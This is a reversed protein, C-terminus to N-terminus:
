CNTLANSNGHPIPANSNAKERQKLVMRRDVVRSVCHFYETGNGLGKFRRSTRNM